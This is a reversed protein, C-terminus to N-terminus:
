SEFPAPLFSNTNWNVQKCDWKYIFICTGRVWMLVQFYHHVVNWSATAKVCHTKWSNANKCFVYCSLNSALWCFAIVFKSGKRNFQQKYRSLDNLFKTVFGEYIFRRKFSHPWNILFNIACSCCSKISKCTHTLLVPM